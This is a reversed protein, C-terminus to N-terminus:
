LTGVFRDVSMLKKLSEYLRWQRIKEHHEVEAQVCVEIIMPVHTSLINLSGLHFAIM